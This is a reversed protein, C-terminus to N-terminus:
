QSLIAEQSKKIKELLSSNDDYNSDSSIVSIPESQEIDEYFSIRKIKEKNLFNQLHSHIQQTSSIITYISEIAIKVKEQPSYDIVESTNQTYDRRKAPCNEPRRFQLM